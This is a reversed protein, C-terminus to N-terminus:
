TYKKALAKGLEKKYDANKPLKLSGRLSTAVIGAFGIERINAPISVKFNALDSHPASRNEDTLEL